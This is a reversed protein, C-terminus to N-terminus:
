PSFTSHVSTERPLGLALPRPIVRRGKSKDKNVFKAYPTLTDFFGRPATRIEFSPWRPPTRREGFPDTGSAAPGRGAGAEETGQGLVHATAKHETGRRDGYGGRKSALAEQAQLAEDRAV